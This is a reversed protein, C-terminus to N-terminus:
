YIEVQICFAVQVVTWGQNLVGLINPISSDIRRVIVCVIEQLNLVVNM